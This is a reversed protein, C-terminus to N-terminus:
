ASQRDDPRGKGQDDARGSSQNAPRFRTTETLAFQGRKLRKIRGERLLKGFARLGEERSFADEGVYRRVMGMVLPRTFGDRNGILVAHCAAAELLEGLEHAGTQEVYDVFGDNEDDSRPLTDQAEDTHTDRIVRRPRVIEATPAPSDEEPTTESSDVRQESVLVLPPMRRASTGTKGPRRPQVVRALDDRYACVSDQDNTGGLPAAEKDARTAQVAAKLHAIASRRRTVENSEMHSNTQALIRDLSADSKGVGGDDFATLRDDADDVADDQADTADEAIVEDATDQSAIIQDDEKGDAAFLNDDADSGSEAEAALLENGQEEVATDAPTSDAADSQDGQMERAEAEAEALEAMLEAEEEPTLLSNENDQAPIDQKEASDADSPTRDGKIHRVRIVRPKRLPSAAPQGAIDEDQTTGQEADAIAHDAPAEAPEQASEGVKAIAHEDATDELDNSSADDVEAPTGLLASLDSTIEVEKEMQDDTDTSIDADTTDVTEPDGVPATDTDLDASLRSLVGSITDEGDGLTLDSDGPAEDATETDDAASDTDEAVGDATEEPTDEAVVAAESPAPMQEATPANIPEAAAEDIDSSTDDDKAVPDAAEAESMRELEQLREARRARRAQRLTRIEEPSLDQTDGDEGDEEDADNSDHDLDTVLTQDEAAPHTIDTQPAEERDGDVFLAAVSDAQQPADQDEAYQDAAVFATEGGERKQDVVARIRQLKEAISDAAPTVAAEDTDASPAAAPAAIMPADAGAAAEEPAAQITQPASIKAEDSQPAATSQQADNDARDLPTQENQSLLHDGAVVTAGIATQTTSDADAQRLVVGDQEVRAEVRKQIEREAIRHLMEADPTPPEAGFYRDDAALDRFYEAISKMTNFPEDFGELTCSFTGYSVTLIKSNSVM